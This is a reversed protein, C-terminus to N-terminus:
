FTSRLNVNKRSYWSVFDRVAMRVRRNDKNPLAVGISGILKEIEKGSVNPLSKAANQLWGVAQETDPSVTLIKIVLDNADVDNYFKFILGQLVVKILQEGHGGTVLFHKVSQQIQKPDDDFFSIPPYPSGWSVYDIFFHVCAILPNYEECMNLTLIGAHLISKMLGENSITKNPYFMLLETSMNFFDEIVDPMERISEPKQELLTFFSSSQELGLQYVAEQIQPNVTEDSFERLMAGSVYLYCGFTTTQFGKHIANAILPLVSSIFISCSHLANKLLKVFSESVHLSVSFKDLVAEVVPWISDMFFKAVPYEHVEFNLARLVRLCISLLEAEDHLANIVNEDQVSGESALQRIKEVTPGLFMQCTKYQDQEPIKKMVHALGTMLDYLAKTQLENHVQQYLMYLQELYNVLDSACDECFFMLAQCTANYISEKDSASLRNVLDGQFGKTIYNLQPELFEPNKSTWQSYRGLVLTAAYRLKPHEPLQVLMQMIAPLITKEKLSVEKAMVRMSFLSAELHQWHANQQSLLTQLQHFPVNLAKQPGVVACCDKLVDGMEYRFEKFKDEQEKDGEFLNDENTGVPYALHKIIVEILQLYIDLFEVRSAEFKPLTIMQKLEYWFYFTYKVVDLDEEYKCCTLLIQVLPKFHAANKAILVHWLEGAEVYLKTLGDVVDPDDLRDPHSTYFENIKLIQGYLADVLNFNDIDRTERLISCLCDVAKEFTAEETISVFILQVFLDVQCISEVPCEKIWSNLCDLVITSPASKQEIVNKLFLLVNEVNHTILDASRTNFEEDTLASKNSESLEEPLVKFFELLAPMYEPKSSLYASIESMAGNWQLYQLSLHALTLCLQTRILRDNDGSYAAVLELISDKLQPLLDLPVQGLDYMAKAKLTQSAFMKYEMPENPNLLLDHSVQWAEASKQFEELHSTARKKDEQSAGSYMAGLAQKVADM